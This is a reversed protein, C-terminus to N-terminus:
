DSLKHYIMFEGLDKPSINNENCINIADKLWELTKAQELLWYGHKSWLSKTDQHKSLEEIERMRNKFEM